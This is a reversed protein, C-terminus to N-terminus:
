TLHCRAGLYENLLSNYTDIEAQERANLKGGDNKRDILRAAGRAERTMIESRLSQCSRDTLAPAAVPKSVSNGAPGSIQPVTSACGSLAVALLVAGCPIGVSLPWRWILSQGTM